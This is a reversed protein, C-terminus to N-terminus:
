YPFSYGFVMSDKLRKIEDENRRYAELDEQIAEAVLPFPSGKYAAWLRDESAFEYDKPKGNKDKMRVRNLDM